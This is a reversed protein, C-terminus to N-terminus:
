KSKQGEDSKGGNRGRKLLKGADISQNKLGLAPALNQGWEGKKNLVHNGNYNAILYGEHDQRALSSM